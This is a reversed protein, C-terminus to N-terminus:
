KSNYRLVLYLLLLSMLTFWLGPLYSWWPRPQPKILSLPMLESLLNKNGLIERLVLYAPKWSHAVFPFVFMTIFFVDFFIGNKFVFTLVIGAFLWTVIACALRFFERSGLNTYYQRKWEKQEDNM